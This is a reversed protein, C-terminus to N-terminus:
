TDNYFLELQLSPPFYNIGEEITKVINHFDESSYWRGIAPSEQLYLKISLTESLKEAILDISEGAIGYIQESYKSNRGSM